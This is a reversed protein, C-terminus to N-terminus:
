ERKEKKRRLDVSCPERQSACCHATARICSSPERTGFCQPTSSSPSPGYGVSNGAAEARRLESFRQRPMPNRPPPCFSTRGHDAHPSQAHWRRHTPPSLGASRHAVTAKAAVDN